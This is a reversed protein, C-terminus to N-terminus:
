ATAPLTVFWSGDPNFHKSGKLRLPLDRPKLSYHKRSPFMAIKLAPMELLVNLDGDVITTSGDIFLCELEQLSLLPRLSDINGCSCLTLERLRSLTRLEEISRFGNFGALELEELQLLRGLGSLSKVRSLYDLELIKMNHLEGIPELSRIRAKKLRLLELSALGAFCDADEELYESIILEKLWHSTFVSAAGPQWHLGCFHLYPFEQFRIEVNARTTLQLHRLEHLWHIPELKDFLWSLFRLCKLKPFNKLFEIDDGSWGWGTYLTIEAVEAELADSTEAESWVGTAIASPGYTGPQILLNSM